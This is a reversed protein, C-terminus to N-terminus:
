SIKIVNQEREFLCTGAKGKMPRPVGVDPFLMKDKKTELLNMHHRVRAM